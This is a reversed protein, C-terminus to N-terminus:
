ENNEEDKILLDRMNCLAGVVKLQKNGKKLTKIGLTTNLIRYSKLRM